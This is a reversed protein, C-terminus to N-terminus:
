STSYIDFISELFDCEAGYDKDFYLVDYYGVYSGFVSM